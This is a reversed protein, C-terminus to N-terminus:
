CLNLSDLAVKGATSGKKPPHGWTQTGAKITRLRFHVINIHFPKTSTKWTPDGSFSSRGGDAGIGRIFKPRLALYVSRFCVGFVLNNRQGVFPGFSKVSNTFCCM